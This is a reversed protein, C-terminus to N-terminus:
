PVAPIMPGYYSGWHGWVDRGKYGRSEGDWRSARNGNGDYGDGSPGGFRGGFQNGRFGDGNGDGIYRAGPTASANADEARHRSTVHSERAMAPTALMAAAILAVSLLKLTTM